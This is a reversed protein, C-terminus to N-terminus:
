PVIERFPEPIFTLLFVILAIFGLAKRGRGLPISLDRTPPHDLRLFCMLISWVVWVGTGSVLNGLIGAIGLVAACGRMM